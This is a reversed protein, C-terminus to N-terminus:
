GLVFGEARHLAKWSQSGFCEREVADMLVWWTAYVWGHIQGHGHDTSITQHEHVSTVGEKIGSGEITKVTSGLIVLALRSSPRAKNETLCEDLLLVTM